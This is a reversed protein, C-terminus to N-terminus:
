ASARGSGPWLAPRMRALVCLVSQRRLGLTPMASFVGCLMASQGSAAEDLFKGSPAHLLATASM